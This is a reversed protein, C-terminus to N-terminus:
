SGARRRRALITGAMAVLVAVAAGYFLWRRDGTACHDASGAPQAVDSDPNEPPPEAQTEQHPQVSDLPVPALDIDVAQEDLKQQLAVGDPSNLLMERWTQMMEPPAVDEIGKLLVAIAAPDQTYTIQNTIRQESWVHLTQQWHATLAKVRDDQSVSPNSPPGIAFFKPGLLYGLGELEEASRQVMEETRTALWRYAKATRQAKELASGSSLSAYLGAAHIAEWSMLEPKTLFVKELPE